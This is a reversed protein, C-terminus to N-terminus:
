RVDFATDGAPQEWTVDVAEVRAGPPGQECWRLMSAVHEEPGEFVAEVNGDALNRVWGALGLSRARARAEARFFVGQVRGSIVAHARVSL